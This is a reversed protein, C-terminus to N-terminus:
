TTEGSPKHQFCFWEGVGYGFSGWAGCWCHHLFPQSPPALKSMELLYDEHMYWTGPDVWSGQPGRPAEYHLRYFDAKSIWGVLEVTPLPKSRAMVLVNFDKQVFWQTIERSYILLKAKPHQSGKVDIKHPGSCLDAVDGHSPDWNLIKRPDLGFYEACAWESARGNIQVDLSDEEGGRWSVARSAASRHKMVLRAHKECLAMHEPQLRIM